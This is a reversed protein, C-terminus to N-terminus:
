YEPASVAKLWDVFQDPLKYQKAHDLIDEVLRPFVAEFEKLTTTQAM